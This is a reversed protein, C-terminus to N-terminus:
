ANHLSAVVSRAGRRSKNQPSRRALDPFDTPPHKAINWSDEQSRRGCYSVEPFLRQKIRKRKTPTNAKYMTHPYNDDLPRASRTSSAPTSRKHTTAFSSYPDWPGGQETMSANGTQCSRGTTGKLMSNSCESGSSPNRPGLPSTRYSCKSTELGESSAALQRLDQRNNQKINGLAGLTTNSSAMQSQMMSRNLDFWHQAAAANAPRHISALSSNYSAM